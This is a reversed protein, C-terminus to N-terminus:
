LSDCQCNHIAKTGICRCVHIYWIYMCVYICNFVNELVNMQCSILSVYCRGSHTVDCNLHKNNREAFLTPSTIYCTLLRCFKHTHTHVYIVIIASVLKNNEKVTIRDGLIIADKQLAETKGPTYQDTLVITYNRNGM